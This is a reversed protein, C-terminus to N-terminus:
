YVKQYLEQCFCMFTYVIPSFTNKYLEMAEVNIYYRMLLKLCLRYFRFVLFINVGTLVMYAMIQIIGMFRFRSEGWGLITFYPYVFAGLYLVFIMSSLLLGFISEFFALLFDILGGMIYSCCFELYFMYFFPFTLIVSAFLNVSFFFKDYIHLDTLWAIIIAAICILLILGFFIVMIHVFYRTLFPTIVSAAGAIGLIGMILVFVAFIAYPAVPVLLFYGTNGDKM